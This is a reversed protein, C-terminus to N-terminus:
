FSTNGGIVNTTGEDFVNMVGSGIIQNNQIMNLSTSSDLGIGAGQPPISDEIINSGNNIV